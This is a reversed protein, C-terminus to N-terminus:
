RSQNRPSVAPEQGGCHGTGDGQAPHMQNGSPRAAARRHDRKFGRGRSHYVQLLEEVANAELDGGGSNLGGPVARLAASRQMWAWHLTLAVTVSMDVSACGSGSPDAGIGPLRISFHSDAAAHLDASVGRRGGFVLAVPQSFSLQELPITLSESSHVSETAVALSYGLSRVVAACDAATDHKHVLLWKEGANSQHARQAVTLVEHVHLLGFSEATRMIAARDGGDDMGDLICCVSGLRAAAARRLKADREAAPLHERASVLRHAVATLFSESM